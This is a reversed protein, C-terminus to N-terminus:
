TTHQHDRGEHEVTVSSALKRGKQIDFKVDTVKTNYHFQVGFSELYRVM